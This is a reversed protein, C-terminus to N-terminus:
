AADPDVEQMRLDILTRRMGEISMEADALSQRQPGFTRWASFTSELRRAAEILGSIRDDSKGALSRLRGVDALHNVPASM